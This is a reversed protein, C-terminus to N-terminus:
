LGLRRAAARAFRLFSRLVGHGAPVDDSSRDTYPRATRARPDAPRAGEPSTVPPSPPRACRAGVPALSKSPLV